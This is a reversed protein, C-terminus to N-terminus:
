VVSGSPLETGMEEATIENMLKMAEVICLTSGAMVEDGVQVFPPEGPVRREGRGPLFQCGTFGLQCSGLFLQIFGIVFEDFAFLLQFQALFFELVGPILKLARFLLENVAPRFQLVSPQFQLVGVLLEQVAFRFVGITQRFIQVLLGIRFGLDGIGSGFQLVGLIFQVM